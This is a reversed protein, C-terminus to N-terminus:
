ENPLKQRILERFEDLQPGVFARKPIVDFLRAGMYLMFLNPTERFKTYASWSRQFQSVDCSSRLGDQDASLLNERSFDPHKRFDRKIWVPRLLVRLVFWIGGLLIFATGGLNGTTYVLYLGIAILACGITIRILSYIRYISYHAKLAESYDALNCQYRVEV